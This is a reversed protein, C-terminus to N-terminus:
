WRCSRDPAIPRAPSERPLPWSNQLVARRDRWNSVQCSMSGFPRSHIFNSCAIARAPPEEDIRLGLLVAPGPEVLRTPLLSDSLM